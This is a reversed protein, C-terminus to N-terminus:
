TFTHSHPRSIYWDTTKDIYIFVTYVSESKTKNKIKKARTSQVSWSQSNSNVSM